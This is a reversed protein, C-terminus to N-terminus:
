LRDQQHVTQHDQLSYTLHYFYIYPQHRIPILYRSINEPIPPKLDASSLTPPKSHTPKQSISLFALSVYSAIYSVFPSNYKLSARSILGFASGSISRIQPPNGQWLKEIAPFLPPNSSM